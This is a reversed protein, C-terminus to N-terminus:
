RHHHPLDDARLALYTEPTAAELLDPHDDVDLPPEPHGSLLDSWQRTTAQEYADRVRPEIRQRGLELEERFIRRQTRRRQEEAEEDAPEDAIRQDEARLGPTREAILRDERHLQECAAFLRRSMGLRLETGPIRCTLFDDMGITRAHLRLTEPDAQTTEARAHARLARTAPDRELPTTLGNRRRPSRDASLGVTRLQSPPASRLVLYALMQTRATSLLADDSDTLHDEPTGLAAPTTHAGVPQPPQGPHQDHDITIFLDGQPQVSAGCLIRRHAYAHLVKSGEELQEWGEVLRNKRVNGGKAEILWYANEAEHFGWLDPLTRAPDKFDTALSPIPGGDELHWTQGLGMLSRCAWEAMTMGLRYGLMSKATRETGHEYVANVTLRQGASHPLPHKPTVDHMGLYAYLPAVRAVLEGRALQQAQHLWPTVDRGVETAAKVIERWTTTPLYWSNKAPFAGPSTWPQHKATRWQKYPRKAPGSRFLVPVDVSDAYTLPPADSVDAPIVRVSDCRGVEM